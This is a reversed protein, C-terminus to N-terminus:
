YVGNEDFLRNFEIFTDGDWVGLLASFRGGQLVTHKVEEGNALKETVTSGEDYNEVKEVDRISGHEDLFRSIAARETIAYGILQKLVSDSVIRGKKTPM